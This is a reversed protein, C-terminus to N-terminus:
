YYIIGRYFVVLAAEEVLDEEPLILVEVVV